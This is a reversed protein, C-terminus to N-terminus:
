RPDKNKAHPTAANLWPSNVSVQTVKHHLISPGRSYLLATLYGPVKGKNTLTGAFKTVM